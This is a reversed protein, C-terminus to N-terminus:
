KRSKKSKRNKSKKNRKTKRRAGGVKLGERNGMNFVGIQNQNELGINREAKIQDLLNNIIEIIQNKEPETLIAKNNFNVGSENLDSIVKDILRDDYTSDLQKIQNRDEQSLVIEDDVQSQSVLNEDVISEKYAAEDIFTQDYDNHLEEIRKEEDAIITKNTEILQILSNFATEFEKLDEIPINNKTAIEQMQQNISVQNRDAIRAYAIERKAKMKEFVNEQALKQRKEKEEPTEGGVKRRPTAPRKKSSANSSPANSSSANSSSANSSSQVITPTPGEIQYQGRKPPRQFAQMIRQPSFGKTYLYGGCCILILLFIGTIPNNTIMTLLKELFTQVSNLSDRNTYLGYILTGIAGVGLINVPTILNKSPFLIKLYPKLQDSKYTENNVTIDTQNPNKHLEYVHLWLNFCQEKYEPSKLKINDMSNIFTPVLKHRGSVHLNRLANLYTMALQSDMINPDSISSPNAIWNDIKSKSMTQDMDKMAESYNRTTLRDPKEILEVATSACSAGTTIFPIYPMANNLNDNILGVVSYYRSTSEIFTFTNDHATFVCRTMQRLIKEIRNITFMTPVEIYSIRVFDLDEGPSWLSYPGINPGATGDNKETKYNNKIRGGTEVIQKTMDTITKIKSANAPANSFITNLAIGVDAIGNTSTILVGTESKYPSIHILGGSPKITEDDTDINVDYGAGASVLCMKKQNENWVVLLFSTHYSSEARETHHSNLIIYYPPHDKSKIGEKIWNDVSVSTYDRYYYNTQQGYLPGNQFGNPQGIKQDPTWGDEVLGWSCLPWIVYKKNKIQKFVKAKPEPSVLGDLFVDLSEIVLKENRVVTSTRAFDTFGSNVPEPTPRKKTPTASRKSM